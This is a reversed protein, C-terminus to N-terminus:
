EGSAKKPTLSWGGGGNAIETVINGKITAQM